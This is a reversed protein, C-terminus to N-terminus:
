IELRDKGDSWGEPEHTSVALSIKPKRGPFSHFYQAAAALNFVFVRERETQSDIESRERGKEREREREERKRERQKRNLFVDETRNNNWKYYYNRNSYIM